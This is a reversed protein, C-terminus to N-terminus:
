RQQRAVGDQRNDSLLRRIPLAMGVSQLVLDDPEGVRSHGLDKGDLGVDRLQDPSLHRLEDALLHRRRHEALRAALAVILM